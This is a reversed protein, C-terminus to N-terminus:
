SAKGDTIWYVNCYADKTQSTTRKSDISHPPELRQPAGLQLVKPRTCNTSLGKIRVVFETIGRDFQSYVATGSEFCQKLIRASTAGRSVHYSEFTSVLKFGRRSIVDIFVASNRGDIIMGFCQELCIGISIISCQFKNETCQMYYKQPLEFEGISFNICQFGRSDWYWYLYTCTM